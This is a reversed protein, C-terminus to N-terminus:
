KESFSCLKQLRYFRKPTSALVYESKSPSKSDYSFEKLETTRLADWVEHRTETVTDGISYGSGILWGSLAAERVKQTKATSDPELEPELRAQTINTQTRSIIDDTEITKVLSEIESKILRVRLFIPNIDRYFNSTVQNNLTTPSNLVIKKYKHNYSFLKHSTGWFSYGPEIDSSVERQIDAQKTNTMYGNAEEQIKSIDESTLPLATMEGSKLFPDLSLDRLTCNLNFHDAPHLLQMGEVSIKSDLEILLVLTLGLREMDLFVESTKFDYEIDRIKFAEKIYSLSEVISPFESLPKM